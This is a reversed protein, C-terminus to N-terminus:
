LEVRNLINFSWPFLLCIWRIKERSHMINICKQFKLVADFKFLDNQTAIGFMSM